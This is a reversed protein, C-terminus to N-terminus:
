SIDEGFHPYWHCGLHSERTIIGLSLSLTRRRFSCSDVIVLGVGEKVSPSLSYLGIFTPSLLDKLSEDNIRPRHASRQFLSLAVGPDNCSQFVAALPHFVLDIKTRRSYTRMADSFKSHFASLAIPPPTSSGPKSLTPPPSLSPTSSRSPLLHFKPM